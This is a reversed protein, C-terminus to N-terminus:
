VEEQELINSKKGVCAIIKMLKPLIFNPEIQIKNKVIHDILNTM